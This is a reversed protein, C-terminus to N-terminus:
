NRPIETIVIASSVAREGGSDSPSNLVEGEAGVICSSGGGDLNMADTCGLSIFKKAFESLTYGRSNNQGRGDVVILILKGDATFGAGTRNVRSFGSTGGADLCEGWYSESSVDVGDKVLRPGGGIAEYPDWTWTGECYDETPPESMFTKTKENNDLPSPFVTHRKYAISTCYVWQIEFHGDEMQGIASRVPYITCEANEDNPWNFARFASVVFDRKHAVLSVSTSGAFYGGNTALCPVGDESPTDTFFVSTKKKKSSRRCNFRLNPNESFDITAVYGHCKQGDSFTEDFTEVSVGKPYGDVWSWDPQPTQPTTVTDTKEESPDNDESSEANKGCALVALASFLVISINRFTKVM